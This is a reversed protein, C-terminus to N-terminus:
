AESGEEIVSYLAERLLLAASCPAYRGPLGPATLVQLGINEALSRDFGGPPSALELLLAQPSVCCLAAESFVRAPVTNVICDFEGALCEAQAFDLGTLGLAHALARDAGDRAAVATQAGLASLSLSLLKGIRGFGLVLCRSDRLAKESHEMLLQVAGEATLAANGTVYAPREMLEAVRLKEDRAARYLTQGLGGGCLLQGPWLAAALTETSLSEGSLPTNILEGHRAPTPLVVCDAGYVCAQLCSDKPVEAPLQARELAYSHVKHGDQLLLTCLLVSRRDGGVVAFRM